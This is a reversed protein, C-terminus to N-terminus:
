PYKPISPTYKWAENGTTYQFAVMYLSNKFPTIWYVESSNPGVSIEVELYTGAATGDSRWLERGHSPGDDASFYLINNLIAFEWPVSSGSGTCIDKLLTTGATSGDSSWLEIGTTGDNAQFYIKNKYVFLYKPESNGPGVLIDKVLEVFTGNSRMLEDGHTGDNASFYLWDNFKVLYQPYSGASGPNIDLAIRVSVGDYVYLENGYTADISSFYLLNNYNILYAPYAASLSITGEVTGNSKWLVNGGNFYLTDNFTYFNKPDGNQSDVKKFYNTGVVTGDTRYLQNGWAGANVTDHASFYMYDLYVYFSRVNGNQPPDVDVFLTGIDLGIGDTVYINTKVYPTGPADSAFYLKNKFETFYRPYGDNYSPGPYTELILRPNPIPSSTPTAIIM